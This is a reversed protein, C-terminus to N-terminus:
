YISERTGDQVRGHRRDCAFGRLTSEFLITLIWIRAQPFEAREVAGLDIDSM